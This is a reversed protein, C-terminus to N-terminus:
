NSVPASFLKVPKIANINVYPNANLTLTHGRSQSAFSFKGPLYFFDSKRCDFTIFLHCDVFIADYFNIVPNNIYMQHTM